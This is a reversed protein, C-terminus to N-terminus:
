LRVAYYTHGTVRVRRAKVLAGMLANFQEFTCGHQTLTLYLMTAPMGDAGAEHVAATVANAIAVLAATAQAKTLTAM